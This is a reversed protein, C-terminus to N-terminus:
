SSTDRIGHSLESFKVDISQTIKCSRDDNWKIDVDMSEFRMGYDPLLAYGDDDDNDFFMVIRKVIQRRLEFLAFM